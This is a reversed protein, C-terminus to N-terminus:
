FTNRRADYKQCVECQTSVMVRDEKDIEARLWTLAQYKCEYTWQWKLLREKSVQRKIQKTKSSSCTTCATKGRCVMEIACITSSVNAMYNIVYTSPYARKTYNDVLLCVSRDCKYIKWINASSRDNSKGM